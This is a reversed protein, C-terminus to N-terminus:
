ILYLWGGNTVAAVDTSMARDNMRTYRSQSFIDISCSLSYISRHDMNFWFNRADSSREHLFNGRSSLAPRFHRVARVLTRMKTLNRM